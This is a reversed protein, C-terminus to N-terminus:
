TTPPMSSDIEAQAAKLKAQVSKYAKSSGAKVEFATELAATETVLGAKILKALVQFAITEPEVQPTAIGSVPLSVTAVRKPGTEPRRAPGSSRLMASRVRPRAAPRPSQPYIVDRHIAVWIAAGITAVVVLIALLGENV